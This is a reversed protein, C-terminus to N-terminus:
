PDTLLSGAAVGHLDIESGANDGRRSPCHNREFDIGGPPRLQQLSEVGEGKTKAPEILDSCELGSVPSASGPHVVNGVQGALQTSSCETFKMGDSSTSAM